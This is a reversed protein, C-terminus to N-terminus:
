ELVCLLVYCFLVTFLISCFLSSRYQLVGFFTRSLLYASREEKNKRGRWKWPINELINDYWIIHYCCVVCVMTGGERGRGRYRTGQKCCQEYWDIACDTKFILHFIMLKVTSVANFFSFYFFYIFILIWPVIIYPAQQLHTFIFLYPTCTNPHVHKHM